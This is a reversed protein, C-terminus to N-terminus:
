RGEHSAFHKTIFEGPPLPKSFLYGQGEQCGRDALFARQAETEIGEAVVKLRMAGAMAIIAEAIAESDPDGPINDVFSKDIKLYDVPFHKLYGLSSYGIGFDDIAITMGREKLQALVQKTRDPDGMVMTETVELEIWKPDLQAENM